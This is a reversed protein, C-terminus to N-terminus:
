EKNILKKLINVGKEGIASAIASKIKQNPDVKLHKMTQLAENEEQYNTFLEFIISSEETPDIFLQLAELYEDKNKASLYKFGLDEAFHKVLQTSKNGFHGCAAMYLNADEGFSTCRHPHLKFEAGIGNNVLLIRINNGIHRNGLSNLDYFFALDGTALFCLRKPYLLSAGILSSTSGDIGCCGVNAFAEVGDPLPFMNWCRRTNSASLHLLSGKPLVHSLQSVNWINSFPLEPIQSYLDKLVDQYLDYQDHRSEKYKQCYYTFFYDEKMQFVKTMTQYPDRIEGDESVRWFCDASYSWAYEAASVEGIHIALNPKMFAWSIGHQQLAIAPCVKYRGYYGSTHDCIVVADYKACFMDVASTLKDTFKRHTGVFIVIRGNPIEPLEDWVYYRKIVKVPPLDRVSFDTSCVTFLNIHAPGGGNRSLELIVRNVERVVFAEDRSDKIIPIEVSLRAVDKATQSRDINQSILQGIRDPGQHATIALVPLKRYFAETLGPYYNRSATSGTCTLVVPEGSESAMGCAIYAASREDVSSYIEFWSDHQLSGIFSFNTTGPSAIIKKIGHAKLLYILIQINREVSYYHEM